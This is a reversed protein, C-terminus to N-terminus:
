CMMNPGIYIKLFNIVMTKGLIFFPAEYAGTITVAIGKLQTNEPLQFLIYHHKLTTNGHCKINSLIYSLKM